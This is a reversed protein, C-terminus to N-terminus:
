KPLQLVMGPKLLSPNFIGSKNVGKKAADEVAKVNAKYILDFKKENGYCKKAIKWLTDGEKTTYSSPPTKTATSARVTKVSVTNATEDDTGDSHYSEAVTVIKTSYDRYQKLKIDGFKVEVDVWDIPSGDFEYTAETVTYDEVSVRMNTDFLLQGDPSTRTLIFQTPSRDVKSKELLSLYRDPRYSGGFMPFVLPLTIETLGPRRLFNIEGEDLLTVTSNKGSIKLSLKAPTPMQEGFLYCHYAM